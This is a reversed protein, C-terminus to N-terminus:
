LDACLVYRGGVDHYKCNAHYRSTFPWRVIARAPDGHQLLGNKKDQMLFM